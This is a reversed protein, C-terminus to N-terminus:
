IGDNLTGELRNLEENASNKIRKASALLEQKKTFNFFDEALKVGLYVGLMKHSKKDEVIFSDNEEIRLLSPNRIIDRSGYSTTM